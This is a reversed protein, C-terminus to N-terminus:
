ISSPPLQTCGIPNSRLRPNIVRQGNHNGSCGCPQSPGHGLLKALSSCSNSQDRSILRSQIRGRRFDPLKASRGGGVRSVHAIILFNFASSGMKFLIKPGDVHPHVLWPTRIRM